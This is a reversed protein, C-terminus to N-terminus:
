ILCGYRTYFNFQNSVRCRFLQIRYKVLTYRYVIEFRCYSGGDVPFSHKKSSGLDIPITLKRILHNADILSMM